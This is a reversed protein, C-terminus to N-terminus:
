CEPVPPLDLESGPSATLEAIHDRATRRADHIEPLSCELVEVAVVQMWAAARRVSPCPSACEDGADILLEAVHAFTEGSELATGFEGDDDILALARELPPRDDAACSAVGLLVVLALAPAWRVRV